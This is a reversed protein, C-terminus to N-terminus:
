GKRTEESTTLSCEARRRGDFSRDVYGWGLAGTNMFIERPDIM